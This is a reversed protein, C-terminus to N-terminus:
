RHLFVGEKKAEKYSGFAVTERLGDAVKSFVADAEESPGYNVVVVEDKALLADLEADTTVVKSAPGVQM